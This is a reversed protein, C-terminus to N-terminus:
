PRVQGIGTETGTEGATTHCSQLFIGAGVGSEGIFKPLIDNNTSYQEQELLLLTSSLRRCTVGM